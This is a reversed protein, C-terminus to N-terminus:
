LESYTLEVLLAARLERGKEAVGWGIVQATMDEYLSDKTPLCVTQAADTLAVPSELRMLAIDYETGSGYESHAIIEKFRM